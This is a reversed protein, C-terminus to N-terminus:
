SILTLIIIPAANTNPLPASYPHSVVTRNGCSFPFRSISRFRTLSPENSFFDLHNTPLSDRPYSTFFCLLPMSSNALVLFVERATYWSFCNDEYESLVVERQDDTLIGMKGGEFFCMTNVTKDAHSKFEHDIREGCEASTSGAM